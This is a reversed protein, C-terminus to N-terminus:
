DHLQFQTHCSISFHRVNVYCKDAGSDVDPPAPAPHWMAVAPGGGAPYLYGDSEARGRGASREAGAHGCWLLLLLISVTEVGCVSTAM